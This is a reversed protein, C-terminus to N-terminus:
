LYPTSFVITFYVPLIDFKLASIDRATRFCYLHFPPASSLLLTRSMIHIVQLVPALDDTLEILGVERLM